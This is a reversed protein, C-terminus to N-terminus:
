RCLLILQDKFIHLMRNETLRSSFKSVNRLHVGSKLSNTIIPAYISKSGVSLIPVFTLTVQPIVKQLSGAFYATLCIRACCFSSDNFFHLFFLYIVLFSLVLIFYAVFSAFFRTLSCIAYCLKDM